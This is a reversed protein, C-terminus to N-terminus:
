NLFPLFANLDKGESVWLNLRKICFSHRFDHVRPSNGCINVIKTKDWFKHFMYQMECKCYYGGRHNPFFWTRGPFIKEVEKHYKGCLKLMDDSMMVNRDKKGKANLIKFIGIEFDVDEVKLLRAESSRLGCCYIM